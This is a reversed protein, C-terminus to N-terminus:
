CKQSLPAQALDSSLSRHVTGHSTGVFLVEYVPTVVFVSKIDQQLSFVLEM